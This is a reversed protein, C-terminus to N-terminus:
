TWALIDSASALDAWLIESASPTTDFSPQHWHPHLRGMYGNHPLVIKADVQVVKAEHENTGFGLIM